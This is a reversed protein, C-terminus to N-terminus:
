KAKAQIRPSMRWYLIVLSCATLLVACVTTLKSPSLVHSTFAGYLYLFPRLEYLLSPM